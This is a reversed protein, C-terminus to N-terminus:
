LFAFWCWELISMLSAYHELLVKTVLQLIHIYLLYCFIEIQYNFNEFTTHNDYISLLFQTNQALPFGPGASWLLFTYFVPRGVVLPHPQLLRPIRPGQLPSVCAREVQLREEVRSQIPQPSRVTCGETAMRHRSHAALRLSAQQQLRDRRPFTECRYLAALDPGMVRLSYFL